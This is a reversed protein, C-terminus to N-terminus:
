ICMICLTFMMLDMSNYVSCRLVFGMKTIGQTVLSGDSTVPKVRGPPTTHKQKGLLNSKM